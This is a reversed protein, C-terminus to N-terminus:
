LLQTSYNLLQTTSYNLLQTTSNLLQTSYNLQTTSNLLQTPDLIKKRESGASKTSNIYGIVDNTFQVLAIISAAAGVPDM